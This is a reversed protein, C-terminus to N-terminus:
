RRSARASVKARSRRGVGDRHDGPREPLRSGTRGELPRSLQVAARAPVAGDLDRARRRRARADDRARVAPVARRLRAPHRRDDRLARDDDRPRARDRDARRVAVVVIGVPKLLEGLTRPVPRRSLVACAWVLIALKAIEAPQVSIPGSSSGASRATSRHARGRARRRLRRVRRRAAAARASAARPLRRAHVRRAARPRRGRLAGAQRPVADPRRRRAGGVRLDRQLGDRARVRRARAHRPDAAAARAARPRRPTQEGGRSSRCSDASSRGVTSSARSSTSRPARPRSCCSTGRRRRRAVCRRSRRDLTGEVVIRSTASGRLRRRADGAAEGILYARDGPAFAAALADYPEAKGRGGLIVHKRRGPFSALARLAAAANTAKSDNVYLVGAVTASRRSGTSSGRSPASRRRSRTTRSVSRARRRPRPPPTRATTRM